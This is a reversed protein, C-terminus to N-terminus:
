ANMYLVQIPRVQSGLSTTIYFKFINFHLSFASVILNIIKAVIQPSDFNQLLYPKRNEIETKVDGPRVDKLGLISDKFVTLLFVNEDKSFHDAKGKRRLKSDLLYIKIM